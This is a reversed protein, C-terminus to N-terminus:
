TVWWRYETAITWSYKCRRRTKKLKRVCNTKRVVFGNKKVFNEIKRNESERDEPKWGLDTEQLNAQSSIVSIERVYSVKLMGQRFIESAAYSSAVTYSSM